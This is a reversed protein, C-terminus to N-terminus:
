NLPGISTVISVPNVPVCTDWDGLVCGRWRESFIRDPECEGPLAFGFMCYYFRFCYDPDAIFRFNSGVCLEPPGIPRQTTTIEKTTIEPGAETTTTTTPGEPTTTTTSQTTTTTTPEDTVTTTTTTTYETTTTTTTTPVYETTTTTTTPGETVTTTTTTPPMQTTTTTTTPPMQTTTTTTTPPIQTTTTTTTPPMQTTTTTTTPPMQTTTTTTTTTTTLFECTVPDGDECRSTEENFIQNAECDVVTPLQMICLVFQFCNEPHPLFEVIETDDCFGEPIRANTSVFISSILFLIVFLKKNSRQNM